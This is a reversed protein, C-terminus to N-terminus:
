RLHGDRGQVPWAMCCRCPWGVPGYRMEKSSHYIFIIVKELMVQMKLFYDGSGIVTFCAPELFSVVGLMREAMDPPVDERGASEEEAAAADAKRDTDLEQAEEIGSGGAGEGEVAGQEQSEGAERLFEDARGRGGARGDRILDHEEDRDAGKGAPGPEDPVPGPLVAYVLRYCDGARHAIIFCSCM